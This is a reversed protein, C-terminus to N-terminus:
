HSLCELYQSPLSHFFDAPHFLYGVFLPGSSFDLVCLEYSIFSTSLGPYCLLAVLSLSALTYTRGWLLSCTYYRSFSLELNLPTLTNSNLVQKQFLKIFKLSMMNAFWVSVCFYGYALVVTIPQWAGLSM